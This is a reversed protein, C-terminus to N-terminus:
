KAVALVADRRSSLGSHELIKTLACCNTIHISPKIHAPLDVLADSRVLVGTIEAHYACELDTVTDGVLWVQKNAAVGMQQLALLAPAADPKDATADQAGVIALFRSTWGLHAVEDRLYNGRKNSVVGLPIDTEALCDLLELAGPMATLAALHEAEFTAYYAQSAVPWNEGFFAPFSDRASRHVNVRTEAESWLPKGAVQLAANMSRHILPMTDVLTNDWDFLIATPLLDTM